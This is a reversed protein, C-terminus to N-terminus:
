VSRVTSKDVGMGFSVTACIVPYKGSQWNEQRALREKGNLGAHYCETKIGLSKLKM